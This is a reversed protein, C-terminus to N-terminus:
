GERRFILCTFGHSDGSGTENSFLQLPRVPTMRRLERWMAVGEIGTQSDLYPWIRNVPEPNKALKPRARGM